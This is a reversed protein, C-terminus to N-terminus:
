RRGLLERAAAEAATAMTFASLVSTAKIGEPSIMMALAAQCRELVQRTEDDPKAPATQLARTGLDNLAFDRDAKKGHDYARLLWQPEPHWETAGFYVHKPTITREATEGRYNTYTLTVSEGDGAVLASRTDHAALYLAGAADSLTVLEEYDLVERYNSAIELLAKALDDDPRVAVPDHSVSPSAMDGAGDSVANAALDM